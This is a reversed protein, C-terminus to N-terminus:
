NRRVLMRMNGIFRGDDTVFISRCLESRSNGATANSICFWFVEHMLKSRQILSSILLAFSGYVIVAPRRPRVDRPDDSIAVFGLAALICIVGCVLGGNGPRLVSLLSLWLAHVPLFIYTAWTVVGAISLQGVVQLLRGIQWVFVAAVPNRLNLLM